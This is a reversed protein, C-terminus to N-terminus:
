GASGEAAPQRSAPRPWRRSILGCALAIGVADIGVDMVADVGRGPDLVRGGRVVLDLREACQPEPQSMM